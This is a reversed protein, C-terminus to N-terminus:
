YIGLRNTRKIASGGYSQRSRVKGQKVKAPRRTLPSKGLALHLNEASVSGPLLWRLGRHMSFNPPVVRSYFGSGAWGLLREQEEVGTRGSRVQNTDAENICLHKM